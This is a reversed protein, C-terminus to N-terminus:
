CTGAVAAAFQAFLGLVGHFAPGSFTRFDQPIEAATEGFNVVSVNFSETSVAPAAAGLLTLCQFGTFKAILQLLPWVISCLRERARFTKM